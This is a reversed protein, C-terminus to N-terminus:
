KIEKERYINLILRTRTSEIAPDHQLRKVFEDLQRKTHFRALIEADYDGTIDIVLFVNPDPVLTQAIEYFGGKKIKLAIMVEIVYGLKEYDVMITKKKIIGIRYLRKIRNNVTGLAIRCKAAIERNTMDANFLLLNVIKKDTEDIEENLKGIM